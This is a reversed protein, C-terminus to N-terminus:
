KPFMFQLQFRFSWDAGYTPTIANYFAQMNIKMPQKSIKFIKGAGAGFPVTWKEGSDAEWNSTIIPASVLYWGKKLNYNIFYQALFFNM